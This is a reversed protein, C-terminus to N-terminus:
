ATVFPGKRCRQTFYSDVHSLRNHPVFTLAPLVKLAFVRRYLPCHNKVREIVAIVLLIELLSSRLLM